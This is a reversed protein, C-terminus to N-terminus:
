STKLNAERRGRKKHHIVTITLGSAQTITFLEDDQSDIILGKTLQALEPASKFNFTADKFGISILGGDRNTLAVFSEKDNIGVVQMTLRVTVATDLPTPEAGGFAFAITIEPSATLWHTFLLLFEERSSTM